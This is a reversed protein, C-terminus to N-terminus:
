ENDALGEIVFEEPAQDKNLYADVETMLENEDLIEVPVTDVFASEHSMVREAVDLRKRVEALIKQTQGLKTADIEFKTGVSAAQVLRHQAALAEIQQELSAKQDRTRALMQKAADLSHLRTELLK